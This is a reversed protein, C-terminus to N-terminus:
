KRFLHLRSLLAKCNTAVSGLPGTLDAITALRIVAFVAFLVSSVLGVIAGSIPSKDSVFFVTSAALLLLLLNLRVKPWWAFGVRRRALWYVVPLYSLYMCLFALGTARVGVLPLLLWTLAVFVTMSVTETLIFTKGDGSALIVFGLPWSAVKLVDGLIQWCLVEAAPAFADSYLLSIVWPALGLMALLVPGALLLAIETQENVLRNAAAHDDIVATLRPFYDAGMAGLVFGIYSMSILWAAQFHGL